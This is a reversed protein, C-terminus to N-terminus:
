KFNHGCYDLNYHYSISTNFATMITVNKESIHKLQILYIFCSYYCRIHHLHKIADITYNQFQDVANYMSIYDVILPFEIRTKYRPYFNEEFITLDILYNTYM